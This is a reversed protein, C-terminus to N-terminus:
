RKNDGPIDYNYLSQWRKKQDEQPIKKEILVRKNEKIIPKEIEKVKEFLSSDILPNRLDIRKNIKKIDEALMKVDAATISSEIVVSKKKKVDDKPIDLYKSAEKIIFKNLDGINM